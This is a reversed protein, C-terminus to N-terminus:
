GRTLAVLADRIQAIREERWGALDCELAQGLRKPHELSLTETHLMRESLPNGMVRRTDKVIAGPLRGIRITEIVEEFAYLTLGERESICAIVRRDGWNAWDVTADDPIESGVLEAVIEADPLIRGLATEM